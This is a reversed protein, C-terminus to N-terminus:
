IPRPSASPRPGAWPAPSAPAATLLIADDPAVAANAAAFLGGQEAYILRRRILDVVHYLREFNTSLLSYNLSVMGDPRREIEVRVEGFRVPRCPAATLDIASLTGTM